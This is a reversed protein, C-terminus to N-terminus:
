NDLVKDLMFDPTGEINVAIAGLWFTVTSTFYFRSVIRRDIKKHETKTNKQNDHSNKKKNEAEIFKHGGVLKFVNDAIEDSAFDKFEYGHALKNRIKRIREFDEYIEKSILGLCYSFQIKSAFTSLPNPYEFLSDIIKKRGKNKNLYKKILDELVSDITSACILIVGRDSEKQLTKGFEDIFNLGWKKANKIIEEVKM